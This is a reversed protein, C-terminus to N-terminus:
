QRRRPHIGPVDRWPRVDSWDVDSPVGTWHRFNGVLILTGVSHGQIFIHVTRPFAGGPTHVSVPVDNIAVGCRGDPLLQVRVRWIRGDAIAPFPTGPTGPLPEVVNAMRRVGEVGESFPYGAFCSSLGKTGPLYADKGTWSAVVAADIAMAGLHLYQWQMRTVRTSVEADFGVGRATELETTLLAGSFYHGDGNVLIRQGVPTDVSLPVPEGFLRWRSAQAFFDGREYPGAEHNVAVFEREASTWGGVEARVRITGASRAILTGSSDIVATGGQALSWALTPHETTHEADSHVSARLRYPVGVFVTDAPLDITVSDIAWRSGGEVEWRLAATQLNELGLSRWQDLRATSTVFPPCAIWKLDASASCNGVTGPFPIATVSHDDIGISLLRRVGSSDASALVTTPSIWTAVEVVSLGPLHSCRGSKGDMSSWCLANSEAAFSKRVFAIRAGDPSWAPSREYWDNPTLPWVVGTEANLVGIKLHRDRSWRSTSILLFKGDPSWGGPFDEGFSNTLRVIHGDAEMLGVEVGGSDPSDFQVAWAKRGPRQPSGFAVPFEPRHPRPGSPAIPLEPEWRDEDLTAVWARGNSATDDLSIWLRAPTGGLPSQLTVGVLAAAALLGAVSAAIVAKSPQRLTRPLSAVLADLPILTDPGRFERALEILSRRDGSARHVGVYRAFTIALQKSDGAEILHMGIERLRDADLSSAGDLASAVALRAAALEDSSALAVAADFIEDHTVRVVGSGSDVLRRRELKDLADSETNRSRFAGELQLQSLSGAAFGVILLAFREDSSVEAVRESVIADGTAGLVFTEISPCAWQRGDIALLGQDLALSLTQLVLFPSGRSVRGIHEVFTDAWSQDPIGALSRLMERVADVGLPQLELRDSNPPGGVLGPRSSSVILIPAGEIQAIAAGLVELSSRDAWHLDDLIVAIPRDASVTLLLDRLASTRLRVADQAPPFTPITQRFIDGLSPDLGVLVSATSPSLAAAGPLRSLANALRAVFGFDVGRLVVDGRVMVVRVRRAHLRAALEQALRSKGLGPGAVLHVQLLDGAVARDWNRLLAAFERERGVMEPTQLRSEDAPVQVGDAWDRDRARRLLVRLGKDLEVGESEAVREVRDADAAARVFDRAAIRTEILTRWQAPDLPNEDRVREALAIAAPARGSDCLRACVERAASCFLTSYHARKGDAWDEFGECGPLAWNEFFKGRYLAVAAEYEGSGVLREFEVCDVWIPVELSVTERDGSSLSNPGLARPNRLFSLSSRLGHRDDADETDSWLLSALVRRSCRCDPSLAIYTLVALHKQQVAGLVANGVQETRLRLEPKGLVHLRFDSSMATALRDM